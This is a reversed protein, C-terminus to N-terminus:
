MAKNQTNSALQELSSSEYMGRAGTDWTVTSRSWTGYGVSESYPKKSSVRLSRLGVVPTSGYSGM